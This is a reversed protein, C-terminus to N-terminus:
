DFVAITEPFAEGRNLPHIGENIAGYVFSMTYPEYPMTLKQDPVSKLHAPIQKKHTKCYEWLPERINEAFAKKAKRRISEYIKNQAHTLCPVLVEYKGGASSIFGREELLPIANIIRTDLAISEPAIGKKLVYLLKLINFEIDIISDFAFGSHKCFNCGDLSTEYNSLRLDSADLFRDIITNRRGAMLYEEKGQKEAPISYNQPYVTAFAVWKGGNPREPMVQPSRLGELSEYLGDSAINIMMFRELRLSYFETKKLEAIAEKLPATYASLYKEAFAEQEKIYKVWDEARYIIFDTYVKGDGTRKMLEGGVLRSIIPEVYASAVGIAKSLESVSLPKEYALILINQALIDGEVLSMPEGSIGFTGSNRLALFQPMYSNEKYTEMDEFGKKIQKRGFDLRSKVTGEAIGLEEAIKKVSEGYFYHKVIVTRYTDSLYAVERRVSEKEEEALLNESIDNEDALEFDEGMTVTPLKYKKRLIDYYKRNMVSTLWTRPNEIEGGKELFALAALATEQALDQADALNNCKALAASLLFEMERQIEDKRM